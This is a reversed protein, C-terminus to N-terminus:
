DREPDFDKPIMGREQCQRIVSMVYAPDQLRTLSARLREMPEDPEASQRKTRTKRKAKAPKM